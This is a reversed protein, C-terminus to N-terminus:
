SRGGIRADPVGRVRLWGCFAAVIRFRARLRRLSGCLGRGYRRRAFRPLADCRGVTGITARQSLLRLACDDVYGSPAKCPRDYPDGYSSEAPAEPAAVLQRPQTRESGCPCRTPQDTTGMCTSMMWAAFRMSDAICLTLTVPTTICVSSKIVRAWSVRPPRCTSCGDSTRPTAVIYPM